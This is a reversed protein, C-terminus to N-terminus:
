LGEKEVVVEGGKYITLAEMAEHVMRKYDEADALAKTKAELLKKKEELMQKELEAQSSGMKLFYTLEQATATNNDIREEVLRYAKTVVRKEIGESTTVKTKSM